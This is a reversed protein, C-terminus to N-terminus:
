PTDFTVVAMKRPRGRPKVPLPTGATSALQRWHAASGVTATAPLPQRLQETLFRQYRHRRERSTPGLALYTPNPTLLPDPTGQLYARASSWSYAEPTPVMRARVPNSEVYAGCTLLYAADVIRLSKFRDQWFHGIHSYKRKYALAYRLNLGQIARRLGVGTAARVVLHVHNTMLCYAWIRLDVRRSQRTLEELYARYDDDGFFVPQRRNGRQTVHYALDPLTIRSFRAM